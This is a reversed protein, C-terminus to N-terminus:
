PRPWRYPRCSSENINMLVKYFAKYLSGALCYVLSWSGAHIHWQIKKLIFGRASTYLLVGHGEDKDRSM